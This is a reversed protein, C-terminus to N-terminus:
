YFMLKVKNKVNSLYAKIRSVLIGNPAGIVTEAFM